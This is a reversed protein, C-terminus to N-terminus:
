VKRLTDWAELFSEHDMRLRLNQIRSFKKFSTEEEDARAGLTNRLYELAKMADSLRKGYVPEHHAVRNRVAYVTALAPSIESRKIKKNPFVKKLSPKWLSEEYGRSFLRKWFFFNMQSIVQGHSVALEAQRKKVKAKHITGSPVGNPFAPADLDRNQQSSLKAYAAKQARSTADKIAKRESEKLPLKSSEPRVWEPDCFDDILRQNVSNRLSLELMAIAAMLSTGLKLTHNHLAIAREQRDTLKEYTKLREASIIDMIKVANGLGKGFQPSHGSRRQFEGPSATGMQSRHPM